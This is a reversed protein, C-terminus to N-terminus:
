KRRYYDDLYQIAKEIGRQQHKKNSGALLLVINGEIISFFIRYGAGHQERIEYLDEVGKIRKYDGFNGLQIRDLRTFIRAVTHKDKLKLLWNRFPVEGKTTIYEELSYVKM